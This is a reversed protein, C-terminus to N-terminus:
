RVVEGIRLHFTSDAALETTTEGLRVTTELTVRKGVVYLGCMVGFLIKLNHGHQAM